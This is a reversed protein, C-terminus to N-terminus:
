LRDLLHFLPDARRDVTAGIGTEVDLAGLQTTEGVPDVLEEVDDGAGGLLVGGPTDRRRRLRPAGVRDRARRPLDNRGAGRGGVLLIGREGRLERRLGLVGVVLPDELLVHGGLLGRALVHGVDRLVAEDLANLRVLLGEDLLVA